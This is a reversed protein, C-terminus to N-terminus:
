PTARGAAAPPNAPRPAPTASRARLREGNVVYFGSAAIIVAGAVTWRDPAAGFVLYGLTASWILQLYSIPALVGPRAYRYALIALFQGTSAIAGLVVALGVHRWPLPALSFPLVLTLVIWGSVATWFLTVAPRELGAMKRTILVGACWSLASLLVLGAAPQLGAPGPRVVVLMGLFGAGVALWGQPRVREGLFPIALVTILLPSVFNIATADAIPLFGLSAIFVLLGAAAVGPMSSPFSIRWFAEAGTAGMTEAARPLSPDLGVLTPLMTVIALPLMTHTMALVVTPRSFLLDPPAAGFLEFLQGVPGAQGLLVIWVFSKVLASTWFPFLVLLTLRARRGVPQKALWYALPYGFLLCLLTTEIAIAFTSSLVRVYIPVSLLRSFSALSLAGTHPDEVSAMLM